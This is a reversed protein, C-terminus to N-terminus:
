ILLSSWCINKPFNCVWVWIQFKYASCAYLQQLPTTRSNIKQLSDCMRDSKPVFIFALVLFKESFITFGSGFKVNKLRTSIM